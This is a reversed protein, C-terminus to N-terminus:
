VRASSQRRRPALAFLLVMASAPSPIAFGVLEFAADQSIPHVFGNGDFRHQLSIGDGAEGQAWLFAEDFLGVPRDVVAAISVQYETLGLTQVSGMAAIDVEFVHMPANLFGVTQGPVLEPNAEALSVTFSALPTFDAEFFDIEFGVINALPPSASSSEPGGWWRVRTIDFGVDTTFNDALRRDAFAFTNNGTTISISAATGAIPPQAYLSEQACAAGASWLTLACVALSRTRM